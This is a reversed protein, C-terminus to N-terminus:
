LTFDRAPERVTPRGATGMSGWGTSVGISGVPPKLPWSGGTFNTESACSWSTMM